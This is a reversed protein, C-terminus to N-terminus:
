ADTGESAKALEFERELKAFERRGMYMLCVAGFVHVAVMSYIIGEFSGFAYASVAYLALKVFGWLFYFYMSTKAKKMTQLMSSGVGMLAAFPVLFASVRLTWVFEPRLAAMSEEYTLIAMLPESLLLLFVTFFLGIGVVVKTTYRFGERMKELDGQGYGASCVPIMANEYAKGPLNILAIYKWAYNYFLVSNTGGAAILFVRQVLDTTNSILSQVTKPGGVDMVGRIAERDPRFCSRDLTLTMRGRMYWSMGLIFSLLASVATALGAGFVGMGLGYILIPDIVMNFCAASMQVVTSKRAAGEGRLIGAIITECLLAPSMLIYPMLYSMSEDKISGAGMIDIATEALLFVLISSIIALVVGLILANGALKGAFARDSRGLHFAISTTAGTAIGLGACMMLGYIPVVTSVASSSVSGLGSVWFTDVFQNIEVVAFAILFAMVMSKIAVKPDGLLKDLDKNSSM